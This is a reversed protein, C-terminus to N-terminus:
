FPEGSCIFRDVAFDTEPYHHGMHFYNMEGNEDLKEAYRIVLEDGANQRADVCLRIFGSMNQGLDFIYRGDGKDLMTLAPYIRDARIPECLCPRFVGVPPTTDSVANSWSSDDYDSETWRADYLRADFHEGSRLQNYVIPSAETCKWRNDTSLVTCGNVELSLIFKPNDRWPAINHDWSTRFYENYWGNGCIVAFVNEGPQMLQSVDYSNYWLTKRYDSCPATFLDESIPTGNLYYYGIGLGCVHVVASTIPGSVTFRRRFMPAAGPVAPNFKSATKIFNIRDFPHSM